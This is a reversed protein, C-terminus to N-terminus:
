SPNTNMELSSIFFQADLLNPNSRDPAVVVRDVTVYPVLSKLRDSLRLVAEFETKNVSLRLNHFTFLTGSETQPSNISYKDLEMENTIQTIRSVLETSSLTKSADLESSRELLQQEVFDKQSLFLDYSEIRDNTGSLLKFGENYRSFSYSMWVLAIGGLFLLLLFKERTTTAKYFKRTESIM